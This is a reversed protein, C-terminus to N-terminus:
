KSILETVAGDLAKRKLFMGDTKRYFYTRKYYKAGKGTAALRIKIADVENGDVTTKVEGLKKVEMLYETLKDKRLMWFKLEKEDSLVFKTLNFKPSFYFPRDDELKITKSVDKGELTGQLTIVRDELVGSYDTEEKVNKTSWKVTEYNEDLEFEEDKTYRRSVITRSFHLHGNELPKIKLDYENVIRRGRAKHKKYSYTRTEALATSTICLMM